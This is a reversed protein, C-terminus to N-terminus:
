QYASLDVVLGESTKKVPPWYVPDETQLLFYCNDFFCWTMFRKVCACTNM